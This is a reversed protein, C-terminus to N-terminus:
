IEEQRKPRKADKCFKVNPPCLKVFRPSGVTPFLCIPQM